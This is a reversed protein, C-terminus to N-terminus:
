ILFRVYFKIIVLTWAKFPSKVMRHPGETYAKGKEALSMYKYDDPKATPYSILITWDVRQKYWHLIYYTM